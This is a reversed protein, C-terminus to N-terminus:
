PQVQLQNWDQSFADSDLLVKFRLCSPLDLADLYFAWQMTNTIIADAHSTSQVM